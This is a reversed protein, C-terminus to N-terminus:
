EARMEVLQWIWRANVKPDDLEDHDDRPYVIWIPGKDRLTLRKGDIETALIVDYKAFDAAPIEVTYDNAATAHITTVKAPDIGAAELVNRALPGKFVGVGDTWDTGTRLVVKEIGDFTEDSMEVTTGNSRITLLAEAWAPTIAFGFVVLASLVFIPRM